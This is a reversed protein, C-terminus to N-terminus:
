FEILVYFRLFHLLGVLLYLDELSQGAGIGLVNGYWVSETLKAGGVCLDYIRDVRLLFIFLLLSRYAFAEIAIYGHARFAPLLV